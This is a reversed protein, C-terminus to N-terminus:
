SSTDMKPKASQAFQKEHKCCECFLGLLRSGHCIRYGFFQLTVLPTNLCALLYLSVLSETRARRFPAETAVDVHPRRQQNEENDMWEWEYHRPRRWKTILELFAPNKNSSVRLVRVSVRTTWAPKLSVAIGMNWNGIHYSWLRTDSNIDLLIIKRENEGINNLVTGISSM